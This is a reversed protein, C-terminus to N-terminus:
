FGKMYEVIASKDADSLTTGYVHGGNGNGPVSTDFRFFTRGEASPVDSVFGVQGAPHILHAPLHGAHDTFDRRVGIGAAPSKPDFQIQRWCWSQPRALEDPELYGNPFATRQAHWARRHHPAPLQLNNEHDCILARLQPEHFGAPAESVGHLNQGAEVHVVGHHHVPSIPQAVSLRQLRPFSAGFGM